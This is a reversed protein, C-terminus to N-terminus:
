FARSMVVVEKLTYKEHFADSRKTQAHLGTACLAILLATMQVKM